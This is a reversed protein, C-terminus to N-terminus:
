SSNGNKAFVFTKIFPTVGTMKTLHLGANKTNELWKKESHFHLVGINFALFNPLDRLHETLIIRGNPHLIRKLEKFFGTRERDDRIEHASLILFIVNVSDDKLSIESTKIKHAKKSLPYARRAREISIETHQKADYFDLINIESKPFKKELLISTEDFGANINVIKEVEAPLLEDLWDLKYLNSLDYVYFSVVLSVAIPALALFGALYVYFAFDAKFYITLLFILVLVGLSAAYFHWNFRVINFVGQFPKRMKEMKRNTGKEM